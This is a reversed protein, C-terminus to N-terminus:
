ALRLEEMCSRLDVDWAPLEIGFTSALRGRSLVSNAPRRAASPYESSSIPILTSGIGAVRFIEKAFGYWSTKGGASLHFIGSPPDAHRLVENTAAAVSRAWTPAGIQDDVVRCPTGDRGLRLMTLLFNRGRASYVWSTRLIVHRCGSQLVAREGALKSQGYVSLPSPPDSELYPEAKRGDFVYDTSYHLLLAGSAKAEAALYEPAKANIRYATETDSEAGDVATYAAANIIVSPRIARVATTISDPDSLDLEARGTSFLEGRDTLLSALERGVQGHKGTLLVRL